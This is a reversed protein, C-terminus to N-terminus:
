LFTLILLLLYKFLLFIGSNLYYILKDKFIPRAKHYALARHYVM